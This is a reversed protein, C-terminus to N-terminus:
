VCVCVDMCVRASLCEVNSRPVPVVDRAPLCGSAAIRDRQGTRRSLSTLLSPARTLSHPYHTGAHRRAQLFDGGFSLTPPHLLDGSLSLADGSFSNLPHHTLPSIIGVSHPSRRRTLKRLHSHRHTHTSCLALCVCVCVCVCVCM